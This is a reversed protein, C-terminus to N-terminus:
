KVNITVPDSFVYIVGGGTITYKYRFLVTSTGESYGHIFRGDYAINENGGIVFMEAGSARSVNGAYTETKLAIDLATGTKMTYENKDTFLFKTYNTVYQAQNTTIGNIGMQFYEHFVSTNDLTWPWITIGRYSCDALFSSTLASTQQPNYTCNFRSTYDHVSTFSQAPCLFGNSISPIGSVANDIQGMHFTIFCCQDMIDYKDILTKIAPIIAANQSKIEIFLNVGTGKFAKFYDELTPIPESHGSYYDVYYRNLQAYTMSEVNGSGNTTRDITPDHMVVVVGDTTLYVDNEIINAGKSAALLSGAVTNEPALSPVGRHGIINVPRIHTTGPFMTKDEMIDKLMDVNTTVIGHAGSTVLKYLEVRTHEEAHYWVTSALASLYATNRQNAYSAPLLIIRSHAQNAYERLTSLDNELYNKADFVCKTYTCAAQATRLMTRSTSVVFSDRLNRQKLYAGIINAETLSDIRFAPITKGGFFKLANSVDTIYDGNSNVVDLEATINLIAVTPKSTSLYALDGSSNIETIVSAETSINTNIDEVDAVASIGASQNIKDFNITVKVDDYSTTSGCNQLGVRGTPYAPDLGMTSIVKTGNIYGDASNGFVDITFKYSKSASLAETYSTKAHYLWDGTTKYSLEVGNNNTTAADARVCLQQYPCDNNQVRYMLAMWRANDAKQTMTANTTFTYEGFDGIFSPLLIRVFASGSSPAALVLKGNSVSATGNTTQIINFASLSTSSFDNYYLTYESDTPKKVVLYVTKSKTGSKATLKYVGTATPSVTKSSSITIESSSWTINEPSTAVDNAFEVAYKSLHITGGVNAPIAPCSYTATGLPKYDRFVLTIKIDEYSATAGCVQLGVRGTLHDNLLSTQLMPTDNIYGNATSGHVDVTFKYYTSTSLASSYATKGFYGWDYGAVARYAFEVGNSAAANSRVCMQYYPYDSAQVRHMISMWRSDNSAATITANTTIKYDGFEGIFEPLLIRVFNSNAGLASLVLKGNSVTATGNTTEIIDLENLKASSSFDNSYLVYETDSANKVVLYITKSVTGSKATLKYVGAKSPTVKKNTITLDSSSWTIKSRDTTTGQTLQVDYLSLDVTEGANAPLAPMTYSVINNQSSTDADGHNASIDASSVTVNVRVKKDSYIVDIYTDGAKFCTGSPYAYTFGDAVSYTTGDSYTVSAFMGFSSFSEGETYSTRVPSGVISIGTVKRAIIATLASKDSANVKGDKNVDAALKAAAPLTDGKLHKELRILDKGNVGGDCQVDGKIIATATDVAKGNVYLTITDGSAVYEGTSSALCNGEFLNVLSKVTSFPDIGYIYKGSSTQEVYISSGNLPTLLNETGTAIMLSQSAPIICALACLCAIIRKLKLKM